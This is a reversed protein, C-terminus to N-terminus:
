KKPTKKEEQILKGDKKVIVFNEKNEELLDNAVSDRYINGSQDVIILQVEPSDAGFFGVLKNAQELTM